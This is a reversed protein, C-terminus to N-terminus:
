FSIELVDNPIELDFESDSNYTIENRISDPIPPYDVIFSEPFSTRNVGSATTLDTNCIWGTWKEAGPTVDPDPNIGIYTKLGISLPEGIYNPNQVALPVSWTDSTTSGGGSRSLRLSVRTYAELTNFNVYHNITSVKGIAHIYASSGIVAQDITVELTHKLDIEPRPTPTTTFTVTVDRHLNYIERRAKNLAVSVGRWLDPYNNKQDQYFNGLSYSIEDGQEWESTDYEDEIDVIESGDITGYNDVSQSAFLTINYQEKVTQSFRRAAAWTAGRCLKSSTDTITTRVVDMIQKGEEDKVPEYQPVLVAPDGVRVFEGDGDKLYGSFKTRGKYEYQVQNPQWIIVGGAGIDFAQADWLNVFNINALLKWDGSTAASQITEKAPFGPKGPTWWDRLFQAFGPWNVTITQQHLRQYNYNVTLNMTNVTKVRNTYQVTPNDTYRVDEPNIVIDPIAKPLWPTLQWNGYSDFDFDSTITQLRKELEEAADKSRGFVDESYVGITSVVGLPLEIIRNQRQDSCDLTIKRALFDLSPTDVYGFFVQVWGAAETRIMITVEEGQFQELEITDEPPIFSFLASRSQNCAMNIVLEDCLGDDQKEKTTDILYEGITVQVDYGNKQFFTAM